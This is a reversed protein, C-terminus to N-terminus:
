MTFNVKLLNQDLAYFFSILGDKGLEKYRFKKKTYM